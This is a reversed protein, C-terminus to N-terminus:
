GGNSGDLDSNPWGYNGRPREPSMSFGTSFMEPLVVVCKPAPIAAIFKEYHALNAPIDEWVIDTQLLTIPLHQSAM